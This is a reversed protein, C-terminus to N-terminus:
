SVWGNVFNILNFYITPLLENALGGYTGNRVWWILNSTASHDGIQLRWVLIREHKSISMADFYYAKLPENAVNHLSPFKLDSQQRRLIRICRNLIDSRGSLFKIFILSYGRFYSYPNDLHADQSNRWMQKRHSMLHSLLITLSESACVCATGRKFLSTFVCLSQPRQYDVAWDTLATRKNM